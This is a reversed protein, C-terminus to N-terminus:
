RLSAVPKLSEEVAWAPLYVMRERQSSKAPYKGDSRVLGISLRLSTGNGLVLEVTVSKEGTSEKSSAYDTGRFNILGRLMAEVKLSDLANGGSEWAGKSRTARYSTVSGGKHSLEGQVVVEQIQEVAPAASWVRLDLWSNRGGMIYSAMGSSVLYASPSDPKALYVTGPANGYAGVMFEELKVGDKDALRVTSAEEGDLGLKKWTERNGAVLERNEVSSLAELFLKVRGSDAPLSGDDERLTWVGDARILEVPSKGSIRISTVAEANGLLKFAGSRRAASAPSIFLGLAIIVVLSFDIILLARIKGSMIKM